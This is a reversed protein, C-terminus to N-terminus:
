PSSRCVALMLGHDLMGHCQGSRCVLCPRADGDSGFVIGTWASARAASPHVFLKRCMDYELGHLVIRSELMGSVRLRPCRRKQEQEGKRAGVFLVDSGCCM